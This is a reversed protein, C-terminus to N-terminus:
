FQYRHTRDLRKKGHKGDEQELARMISRLLGIGTKGYTERIYQECTSVRVTNESRTLTLTDLLRKEKDLAGAVIL